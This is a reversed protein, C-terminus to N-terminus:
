EDTEGEEMQKLTEIATLVQKVQYVKAKSGKRQINIRPDGPWPMKSVMHSGGKQRPEGFYHQCVRCLDAFDVSQPARRMQAETKEIKDAM